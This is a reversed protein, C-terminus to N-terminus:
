ITFEKHCNTVALFAEICELVLGTKCILYMPMKFVNTSYMTEFFFKKKPNESHIKLNHALDYILIEKSMLEAM